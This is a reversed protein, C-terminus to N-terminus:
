HSVKLARFPQSLVLKLKDILQTYTPPKTLFLVAGLKQAQEAEENQRTTSFIIVPIHSTKKTKKLETLCQMGDLRPMNLDLFIYDPLAIKPQILLDLAEQGNKACVCEISQYIEHLAECFFERDDIDDDVILVIRGM